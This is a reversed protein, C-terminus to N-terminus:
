RGRHSEIYLRLDQKLHRYAYTLDGRLRNWHTTEYSILETPRIRAELGVTALLDLAREAIEVQGLATPHVHDAMMWQRGGFYDLDLVLAAHDSAAHRIARNALAVRDPQRPRGMDIPITATLLHDCRAALSKFARDLSVEFREADFEPVRVDNTGVYLCGVGYRSYHDAVLRTFLPIQHGVVDDVTAGDVAYPSYPVGLARAMWMAWSQLAVGWQLEGGGNTISDGFAIVGMDSAGLVEGAPIPDNLLSAPRTPVADSYWVPAARAAEPWSSLSRVGTASSLSFSM